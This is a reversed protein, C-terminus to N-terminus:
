PLAPCGQGPQVPLCADHCGATGCPYCCAYGPACEADSTCGHREGAQDRPSAAGCGLTSAALALPFFLSWRM